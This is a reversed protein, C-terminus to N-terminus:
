HVCLGDITPQWRPNGSFLQRNLSRWRQLTKKPPQMGMDVDIIGPWFCISYYICLCAICLSIFLYIFLYIVIIIIIIIITSIISIIIIYTIDYAYSM